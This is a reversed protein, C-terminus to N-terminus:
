TAPSSAAEPWPHNGDMVNRGLQLMQLMTSNMTLPNQAAVLMAATAVGTGTLHKPPPVIAVTPPALSQGSWFTAYALWTSPSKRDGAPILAEVRRRGSETPTVIWREVANRLEAEGGLTM